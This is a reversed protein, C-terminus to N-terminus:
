SRKGTIHAPNIRLVLTRDLACDPFSYDREPDYQKMITDLGARKAERDVLFSARGEVIVSEYTLGWACAEDAPQVSWSPVISLCVQANSSLMALKKGEPASHIYLAQGDYGYCVPVVYPAGGDALALFALRGKQLINNIERREVIEKEARRM